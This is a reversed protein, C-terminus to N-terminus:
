GRPHHTESMKDMVVGSYGLLGMEPVDLGVIEVEQSVRNGVIMEIIKYVIVSIVALTM